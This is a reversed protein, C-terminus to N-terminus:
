GVIRGITVFGSLMLLIAVPMYPEHRRVHFAVALLMIVSLGLAALTTLMPEIGTAAPVILGVAGALEALGIFTALGKSIPSDGNKSTTAKYKEYAFVKMGGAFLFVASLLAQVIWLAIRM